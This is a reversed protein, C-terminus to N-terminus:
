TGYSQTGSLFHFLDFILFVFDNSLMHFKSVETMETRGDNGHNEDMRSSLALTTPDNMENGTSIASSYHYSVLSVTDNEWFLSVALRYPSDSPNISFAHKISGSNRSFGITKRNLDVEIDITDGKRCPDICETEDGNIDIKYGNQTSLAYHTSDPANFFENLSHDGSDIGIICAGFSINDM